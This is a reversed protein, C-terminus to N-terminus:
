KIQSFDWLDRGYDLISSCVDEGKSAGGGYKSMYRLMDVANDFVNTVVKSGDSKSKYIFLKGLVPMGLERSLSKAIKAIASKYESTSMTDSPLSMTSMNRSRSERINSIEERIIRRLESQRM